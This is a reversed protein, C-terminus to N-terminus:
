TKKRKGIPGGPSSKHGGRKHTSVKGRSPKFASQDNISNKDSKTSGAKKGGFGWKEDKNKQKYGKKGGGGPAAGQNFLADDEGGDDLLKGDKSRRGKAEKRWKEISDKVENKNKAKEKERDSQVATAYKM